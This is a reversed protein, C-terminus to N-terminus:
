VAGMTFPGMGTPASIFHVKNGGPAGSLNPTEGGLKGFFPYVEGLSNGLMVTLGAATLWIGAVYNFVGGSGVSTPLSLEYVTPAGWIDAHYEIRMTLSSGSIYGKVVVLNVVGRSDEYLGVDSADSYSVFTMDISAAGPAWLDYYNTVKPINSNAPDPLLRLLSKVDGSPSSWGWAAYFVGGSNPSVWYGPSGYWQIDFSGAAAGSQRPRTDYSDYVWFATTPYGSLEASMQLTDYTSFHGLVQFTHFDDQSSGTTLFGTGSSYDSFGAQPANGSWYDIAVFPGFTFGTATCAIICAKGKPSGSASTADYCFYFAPWFGYSLAKGNLALRGSDDGDTSSTRNAQQVVVPTSGSCNLLTVSTVSYYSATGSGPSGYPLFGYCMANLVLDTGVTVSQPGNGWTNGSWDNVTDTHVISPTIEITPGAVGAADVICAYQLWAALGAIAHPEYYVWTVLTRGGSLGVSTVWQCNGGSTDNPRLQTWTVPKVPLTTM